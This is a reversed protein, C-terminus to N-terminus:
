GNLDSRCKPILLITGDRFLIWRLVDGDKLKFFEVIRKPVTTRRRSGRITISTESLFEVEDLDIQRSMM